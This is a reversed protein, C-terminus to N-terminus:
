QPVFSTGQVPTRTDAAERTTTEPTLPPLVLPQYRATTVLMHGSDLLTHPEVVMEGTYSM